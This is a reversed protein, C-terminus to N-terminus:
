NFSIRSTNPISNVTVSFANNVHSNGTGNNTSVEVGDDYGDDDTDIVVSEPDIDFDLIYQTNADAAINQITATITVESTGAAVEIPSEIDAVETGDVTWVVGAETPTTPISSADAITFKWAADSLVTGIETGAAGGQKTYLTVKYTYTMTGLGYANVDDFDNITDSALITDASTNCTAEQDATFKTAGDTDFTQVLLDLDLISIGFRRITSCDTEKNKETVEVIYKGAALWKIEQEYTSSASGTYISPNGTVETIGTTTTTAIDSWDGEYTYVKWSYESNTTNDNVSYTYSANVFATQDQAFTKAGFATLFVAVLLFVLKKM